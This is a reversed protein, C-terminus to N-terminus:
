RFVHCLDYDQQLSFASYRARKKRYEEPLFAQCDPSCWTTGHEAIERNVFNDLSGSTSLNELRSGTSEPASALVLAQAQAELRLKALEARAAALQSDLYLILRKVADDFDTGRVKWCKVQTEVPPANNSGDTPAGGEIQATIAYLRMQNPM